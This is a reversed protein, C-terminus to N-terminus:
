WNNPNHSWIFEFDVFDGQEDMYVKEVYVYAHKKAQESAYLKAEKQTKCIKLKGGNHNLEQETDATIVEYRYHTNNQIM